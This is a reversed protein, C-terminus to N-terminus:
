GCCAVPLVENHRERGGRQERDIGTGIKCIVRTQIQAVIKDKQPVRCYAQIRYSDQGMADDAM